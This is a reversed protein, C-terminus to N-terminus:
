LYESTPDPDDFIIDLNLSGTGDIGRISACLMRAPAIVVVQATPSIYEKKM